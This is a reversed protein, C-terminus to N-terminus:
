DWDNCCDGASSAWRCKGGPKSAGAGGTLGTGPMLMIPRFSLVGGLVNRMEEKSVATEKPLDKIKIRTKAM